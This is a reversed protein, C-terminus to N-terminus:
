RPAGGCRKCPHDIMRLFLDECRRPLPVLRPRRTAAPPAAAVAAMAPTLAPALHGCWTELLGEATGPTFYRTVDEPRGSDEVWRSPDPVVGVAM